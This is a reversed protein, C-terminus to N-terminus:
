ASPQGSRQLIERLASVEDEMKAVHKVTTHLLHGYTFSGGIVQDVDDCAVGNRTGYDTFVGYDKLITIASGAVHLSVKYTDRIDQRTITDFRKLDGSKVRYAIAAAVRLDKRRDSAWSVVEWVGASTSNLKVDLRTGDAHQGGDTPQHVRPPCVELLHGVLKWPHRFTLGCACQPWHLAARNDKARPNSM